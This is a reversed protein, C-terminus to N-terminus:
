GRLGNIGIGGLIELEQGKTPQKELLPMARTILDKVGEVKLSNDHDEKKNWVETVYISNEDNEDKSIIYLGCGKATSVLKSAEILIDALAGAKGTKATLNGHLLYM